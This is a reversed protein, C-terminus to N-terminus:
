DSVYIVTNGDLVSNGDLMQINTPYPIIPLQPNEAAHLKLLGGVIIFTILLIRKM